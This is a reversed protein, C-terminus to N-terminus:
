DLKRTVFVVLAAVACTIVMAGIVTTLLFAQAIEFM